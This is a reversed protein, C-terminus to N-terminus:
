GDCESCRWIAPIPLSQQCFEPTANVMSLTLRTARRIERGSTINTMDCGMRRHNHRRVGLDSDARQRAAAMMKPEPGPLISEGQLSSLSGGGNSGQMQPRRDIAEGPRGVGNATPIRTEGHSSSINRTAVPLESGTSTKSSKKGFLFSM